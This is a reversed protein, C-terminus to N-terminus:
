AKTSASSDMLNMARRFKLRWETVAFTFVVYAVLTVFTVVAFRLEYLYLLVGAVFLIELFTPIISFLVMRLLYEIARIGREIARSIGGTQRDLHFRLSLAHLHQFVELAITRVARESPRAFVADRLEVFAQSLFRAVGYALFLAIPVVVVALEPVDLADVAQKYYLPAVVTAGKAAVLLVVAAVVRLRLAPADAPWIYRALNMLVRSDARLTDRWTAGPRRRSM